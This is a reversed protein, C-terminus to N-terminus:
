YRPFVSKNHYQYSNFIKPFDKSLGKALQEVKLVNGDTAWGEMVALYCGGTARFHGGPSFSSDFYEIFVGEAKQRQFIRSYALILHYYGTSNILSYQEDGRHGYKSYQVRDFHGIAVRNYGAIV